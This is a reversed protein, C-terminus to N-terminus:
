LCYVTTSSHPEKNSSVTFRDSFEPVAVKILQYGLQCSNKHSVSAKSDGITRYGFLSM